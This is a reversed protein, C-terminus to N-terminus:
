KWGEDDRSLTPLSPGHEDFSKRLLAYEAENRVWLSFGDGNADSGSLFGVGKGKAGRQCAGCPCVRYLRVARNKEGDRWMELM